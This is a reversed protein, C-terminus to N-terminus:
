ATESRDPHSTTRRLIQVAERAEEIVAPAEALFFAEFEPSTFDQGVQLESIQQSAWLFYEQFFDISQEVALLQHTWESKMLRSSVDRQLPLLNGM